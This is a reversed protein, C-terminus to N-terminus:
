PADILETEYELTNCLKTYFESKRVEEAFLCDYERRERRAIINSKRGSDGTTTYLDFLEMFDQNFPLDLSKCMHKVENQPNSVFDEYKYITTLQNQEIFLLFRRCYEDFTNPIFEIWDNHQLALYSDIPHRVTLVFKLRYDQNLLRRVTSLGVPEQATLYDSHSHERILLYKGLSETHKILVGMNAKFINESLENILPFKGCLALYTLDTPSFRPKTDAIHLRSLPNVESLLAVNPLAALCKSMVSGGTCSLHQIVRVLPQQQVDIASFELLKAFLDSSLYEPSIYALSPDFQPFTAGTYGDLLREAEKLCSIFKQADGQM